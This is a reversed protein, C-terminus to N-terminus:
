CSLQHSQLQLLIQITNYHCKWYYIQHIERITTSIIAHYIIASTRRSRRKRARVQLRYLDNLLRSDFKLEASQICCCSSLAHLHQFEEPLHNQMTSTVNEICDADPSSLANHKDHEHATLIVLSVRLAAFWTMWERISLGTM